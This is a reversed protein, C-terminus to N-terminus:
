DDLGGWYPNERTADDGSLKRLANGGYGGYLSAPVNARQVLPPRDSYSGYRVADCGHDMWKVPEDLPNGEKDERWKYIGLEEILDVSETDVQLKFGKVYNIGDMVKNNAKQANYGAMFLDKIVEPREPATYIPVARWDWAPRRDEGEPVKEVLVEELKALLQATSLETEYILVRVYLLDGERWIAVLATPNTHGLDLGMSDPNRQPFTIGDREEWNGYILGKLVGPQGLCYVKFFNDDVDELRQLVEVDHLSLFPNNRWTSHMVNAEPDAGLVFRKVAWNSSDVPNYSLFLQGRVADHPRRCRMNMYNFDKEYFQTAEEMWVMNFEASKFKEPDDLGSFFFTSTGITLELDTRNLSWHENEFLGQGRLIDKVLKLCSRKVAPRTKRLCLFELDDHELALSVLHQAISYSKGSGAGGYYVQFRKDGETGYIEDYFSPLMSLSSAGTM